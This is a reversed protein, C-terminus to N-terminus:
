TNEALMTNFCYKLRVLNLETKEMDIKLIEYQTRLNESINSDRSPNALQLISEKFRALDDNFLMLTEDTQLFLTQYYEFRELTHTSLRNRATHALHNKLGVVEDQLFSLHRKWKDLEAVLKNDTNKESTVM